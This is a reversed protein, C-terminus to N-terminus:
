HDGTNECDDPLLHQPTNDQDHDPQKNARAPDADEGSRRVGRFLGPVSLTQTPLQRQSWPVVADTDVLRLVKGMTAVATAIVGSPESVSTSRPSGSRRSACRPVRMPHAATCGIGNAALRTMHTASVATPAENFLAAVSRMKIVALIGFWVM